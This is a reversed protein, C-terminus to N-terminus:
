AASGSAVRCLKSQGHVEVSVRRSPREQTQSREDQVVKKVIWGHQPVDERRFHEPPHALRRRALRHAPEVQIVVILADVRDDLVDIGDVQFFRKTSVFANSLSAKSNCSFCSARLRKKAASM